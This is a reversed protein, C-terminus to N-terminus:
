KSDKVNWFWSGGFFLSGGLEGKHWTQIDLVLSVGGAYGNLGIETEGIFPIYVDTSVKGAFTNWGLKTQVTKNKLSIIPAKFLGQGVKLNIKDNGFYLMNISHKSSKILIISDGIKANTKKIFNDSLELEPMHNCANGGMACPVGEMGDAIDNYLFVVGATVAGREFSGGSTKSVIGGILM